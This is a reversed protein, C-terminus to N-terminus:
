NSHIVLIHDHKFITLCNKRIFNTWFMYLRRTFNHIVQTIQIYFSNSLECHSFNIVLIFSVFQQLYILHNSMFFCLYIEFMVFNTQCKIYKITYIDSFNAIEFIM